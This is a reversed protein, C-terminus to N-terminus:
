EMCSLWVVAAVKTRLGPLAHAVDRGDVSLKSQHGAGPTHRTLHATRRARHMHVRQQILARRLMKRTSGAFHSGNVWGPPMPNVATTEWNGREIVGERRPTKAGNTETTTMSTPEGQKNPDLNRRRAGSRRPWPTGSRRRSGLSTPPTTKDQETEPGAGQRWPGGQHKPHKVPHGPKVPNVPNNTM